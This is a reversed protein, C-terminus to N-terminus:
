IAGEQKLGCISCYEDTVSIVSECSTCHKVKSEYFEEINLGCEGCFKIASDEILTKCMPCLNEEKKPIVDHTENYIEKDLQQIEEFNKEFEPLDLKGTRILWYTYEGLKLLKNSRELSLKNLDAM